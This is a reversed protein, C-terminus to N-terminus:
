PRTFIMAQLRCFIVSSCKTKNELVDEGEFIKFTTSLWPSSALVECNKRTWTNRRTTADCTGIEGVVVAVRLETFDKRRVLREVERAKLCLGAM